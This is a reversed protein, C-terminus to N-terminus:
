AEHEQLLVSSIGIVIITAATADEHSKDVVCRQLLTDSLMWRRLSGSSALALDKSLYEYSSETNTAEVCNHMSQLLTLKQVEQSIHDRIVTDLM